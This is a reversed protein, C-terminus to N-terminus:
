LHSGRMPPEPGPIAAGQERAIEAIRGMWQAAIAPDLPTINPLEFWIEILFGISISAVEVIERDDSAIVQQATRGIPGLINDVVAGPSAHTQESWSVFLLRYQEERLPKSSAEALQRTPRGSWSPAWGGDKTRFERFTNDLFEEVKRKYRADITRGTSEAYELENLRQRALQMVGFAAYRRSAEERDSQSALYEMNVLLEFLQRAGASALEWHAPELLIKISKLTNLARTLIGADFLVLRDGKDPLESLLRDTHSFVEDFIKFLPKMRAKPAQLRQPNGPHGQKKPQTKRKRKGRRRKAM